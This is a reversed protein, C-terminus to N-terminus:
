NYTRWGLLCRGGHDQRQGGSASTGPTGASTNAVSFRSYEARNESEGGIAYVDSIANTAAIAGFDYPDDVIPTFFDLTQILSQGNGLDWVCADDLHETGVTLASPKSIKLKQLVERLQGAPLKAACGGKQVTETLRIKEM